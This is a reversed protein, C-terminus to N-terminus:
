PTSDALGAKLGGPESSKQFQEFWALVAQVDYQNDILIMGNPTLHLSLAIIIGGQTHLNVHAVHRMNIFSASTLIWNNM